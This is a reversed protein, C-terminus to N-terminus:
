LDIRDGEKPQEVNGHVNGDGYRSTMEMIINALVTSFTYCSKKNLKIHRKFIILLIEKWSFKINVDEKNYIIQM